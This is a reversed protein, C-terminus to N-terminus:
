NTKNRAMRLKDPENRIKKVINRVGKWLLQKQWEQQDGMKHHM